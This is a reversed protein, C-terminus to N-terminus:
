FSFQLGVRGGLSVDDQQQEANVEGSLVFGEGGGILRLGSLWWQLQLQGWVRQQL